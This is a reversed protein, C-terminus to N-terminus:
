SISCKVAPDKLALGCIKRLIFDNFGDPYLAIMDVKSLLFYESLEILGRLSKLIRQYRWKLRIHPSSFTGKENHLSSGSNTFDKERDM